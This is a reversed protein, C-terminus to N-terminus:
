INEVSRTDILSQSAGNNWPVRVCVWVQLAGGSDGFSVLRTMLVLVYNTQMVAAAGNRGSIHRWSTCVASNSLWLQLNTGRCVPSESM